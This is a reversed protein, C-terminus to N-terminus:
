RRAAARWVGSVTRRVTETTTRIVGNALDVVARRSASASGASGDLVKLLRRAQGVAHGIDEGPRVVSLVQHRALCDHTARELESAFSRSAPATQRLDVLVARYGSFASGTQLSRCLLRMAPDGDLGVVVVDGSRSHTVTATM